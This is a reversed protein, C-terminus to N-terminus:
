GTSTDGCFKILYCGCGVREPCKVLQMLENAMIKGTLLGIVGKCRILGFYCEEFMCTDKTGCWIYEKYQAM